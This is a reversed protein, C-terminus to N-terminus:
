LSQSASFLDKVVRAIQYALLPPVANGVQHYQQTRNGRFFYNDPFSQLRAAERVTLSRMQIPDPHIYYHGDKSIHSVVTTSPKSSVQVRFRDDFPRNEAGANKHLPLLGPPFSSLKPSSGSKARIAAFWYRKLDERMHARSEHQIADHLKPDIVWKGFRGTPKGITPVAKGGRDLQVADLHPGPHQDAIARRISSWEEFTDIPERSIGSRIRPMGALAQSVTVQDSASLQGIAVGLGFYDNRLGVLIVRHRKQPVGYNEAEIVFNRPALEHPELESVLSHITYESTGRPKELDQKIKMFMGGDEATSSSLLGKVNEMVFVPPMFTKIIRLYERYLFHKKDTAFSDDNARRSRGALSYAQCPPGGILVWPSDDTVGANQLATAILNDSNDAESGLEVQHVHTNSIAFAAAVDPLSVFDDWEIQGRIFQYYSSPVESNRLFYRYIGRLQLTQIASTEMEFSGITEFSPQGTDEGLRSFGENLGGPGAFLDIVPIPKKSVLSLEVQNLLLYLYWTRSGLSRLRGAHLGGRLGAGLSDGGPWVRFGRAVGGSFRLGCMIGRM